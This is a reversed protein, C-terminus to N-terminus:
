QKNKKIFGRVIWSLIQVIIMLFALPYVLVWLLNILKYKVSSLMYPYLFYSSFPHYLRNIDVNLM